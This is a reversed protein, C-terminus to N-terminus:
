VFKGVLMRYFEFCEKMAEKMQNRSMSNDSIGTDACINGSLEIYSPGTNEIFKEDIAYIRNNGLDIQAISLSEGFTDAHIVKIKSSRLGIYNISKLSGFLNRSLEGTLNSNSLELYILARLTAFWQPKINQMGNDMLYLYTLNVLPQFINDPVDLLQNSHLYLMQLNQQNLFLKEPLTSLQNYSIDLYQLERNNAFAQEDIFNIQNSSLYVHILNQCGKFSYSDIRELGIAYFQLEIINVFKQCIISPINKTVINHYCSLYRLDNDTQNDIHQGQIDKFDDLGKTNNIMLDCRYSEPYPDNYTCNIFDSQGVIGQICTSLIFVSLVIKSEM